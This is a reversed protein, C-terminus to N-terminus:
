VMLKKEGDRAAVDTESFEANISTDTETVEWPWLKELHLLPVYTLLNFNILIDSIKKIDSTWGKM